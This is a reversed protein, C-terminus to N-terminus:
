TIVAKMLDAATLHVVCPFRSPVDRPGDFREERGLPYTLLTGSRSALEASRSGSGGARTGASVAPYIAPTVVVARAPAVKSLRRARGLWRSIAHTRSAAIAVRAREGTSTGTTRM